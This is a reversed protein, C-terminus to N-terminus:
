LHNVYMYIWETEHLTIYSECYELDLHYTQFAGLEKMWNHEYM